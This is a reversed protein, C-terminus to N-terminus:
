SYKGPACDTCASAGPAASFKGAPCDTCASVGSASSKGAECQFCEDVMGPVWMTGASCLACSDYGPGRVVAGAPCDTCRFGDFEQGSLCMVEKLEIAGTVVAPRNYLATARFEFTMDTTLDNEPMCTFESIAELDSNDTYCTYLGLKGDIGFFNCRPNSACQYRCEDRAAEETYQYEPTGTNGYAFSRINYQNSMGTAFVIGTTEHWFKLNQGKPCVHTFNTAFTMSREVNTSDDVVFAVFHKLDSFYYHENTQPSSCGVLSESGDYRRCEYNSYGDEDTVSMWRCNVDTNCDRMCLDIIQDFTYTSKPYYDSDYSFYLEQYPNNYSDRLLLVNDLPCRHTFKYPFWDRRTYVYSNPLWTGSLQIPGIDSLYDRSLICEAETSYTQFDYGWIDSRLGTLYYGHQFNSVDIGTVLLDVADHKDTLMDAILTEVTRSPVNSPNSVPLLPFQGDLMPVSWLGSNYLLCVGDQPVRKDHIFVNKVTASDDAAASRARVEQVPLFQRTYVLDNLNWTPTYQVVGNNQTQFNRTILCEGETTYTLFDFNIVQSWAQLYIVYTPTGVLGNTYDDIENLVVSEATNDIEHLRELFKTVTNDRGTMRSGDTKKVTTMPYAPDFPTAFGCCFDPILCAGYSALSWQYNGSIIQKPVLWERFMVYATASWVGNLTQVGNNRTEYQHSAECEQQTQHTSFKLDLIKGWKGFYYAYQAMWLGNSDQWSGEFLMEDASEDIEQLRLAFDEYLANTKDSGDKNKVRQVLIEPYYHHQHTYFNCGGQVGWNLIKYRSRGSPKMWMPHTQAQAVAFFVSLVVSM